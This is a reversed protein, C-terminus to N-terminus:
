CSDMPYITFDVCHTNAKNAKDSTSFKIPASDVNSAESDSPNHDSSNPDSSDTAQPTVSHLDPRNIINNLVTNDLIALNNNNVNNNNGIAGSEELNPHSMLHLTNTILLHCSNTTHPTNTPIFNGTHYCMHLCRNHCPQTLLASDEEGNTELSLVLTDTSHTNAPSANLWSVVWIGLALTTDVWDKPDDLEDKGPAPECRLLGDPGKHKEALVHVLKFDFLLIAAIWRNISTNPQIDPNCLM